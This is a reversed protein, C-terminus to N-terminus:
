KQTKLLKRVIQTIQGVSAILGLIISVIKGYPDSHYKHDFWDGVFGGILPGAVLILPVTTLIGVLWATQFFESKGRRESNQPM